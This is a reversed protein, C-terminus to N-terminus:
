ERFYIFLQRFKNISELDADHIGTSHCFVAAVFAYQLMSLVFLSLNCM